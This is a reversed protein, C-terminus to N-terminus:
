FSTYLSYLLVACRLFSDVLVNGSLFLRYTDRRNTAGPMFRVQPVVIIALLVLVLTVTVLGTIGYFANPYERLKLVVPVEVLCTLFMIGLCLACARTNSCLTIYVMRTTWGAIAGILLLLLKPLVLIALAGLDPDSVCQEVMVTEEYFPRPHEIQPM